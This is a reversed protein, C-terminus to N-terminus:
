RMQASAGVYQVYGDIAWGFFLGALVAAVVLGPVIRKGHEAVLTRGIAVAVAGALVLGFVWYALRESM